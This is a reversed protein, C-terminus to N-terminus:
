DGVLHFLAGVEMFPPRSRWPVQEEWQCWPLSVARSRTTEWGRLWEVVGKVVVWAAWCREVVSALFFAWRAALLSRWAESHAYKGM